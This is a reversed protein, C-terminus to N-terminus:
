LIKCMESTKGSKVGSRKSMEVNDAKDYKYVKGNSVDEGDPTVRKLEIDDSVVDKESADVRGEKGIGDKSETKGRNESLTEESKMRAAEAVLFDDLANTDPDLLEGGKGIIFYTTMIGKGKVPIKGRTRFM